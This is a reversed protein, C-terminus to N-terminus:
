LGLLERKKTEFEEDTLIGQTRLEALRKVQDIPDSQPTPTQHGKSAQHFTAILQRLASVDASADTSRAVMVANPAEWASNPGKDMQGTKTVPAVGPVQLVIAQSAMNKRLEVGSINAYDWTNMQSSFMAGSLLGGKYIFARRDTAIIAQKSQGLIVVKVVENEELSERVSTQARKHTSLLLDGPTSDGPLRRESASENRSKNSSPAKADSAARAVEQPAAAEPKQRGKSVEATKRSRREDKIAEVEAKALATGANTLARSFIEASEEQDSSVPLELEADRGTIRLKLEGGKKKATAIAVPGMLVRAAGIKRKGGTRHVEARVGSLSVAGESTRVQDDIIEVGAFEPIIESM